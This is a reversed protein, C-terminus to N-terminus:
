LPIKHTISDTTINGRECHYKIHKDKLTRILRTLLKDIKIMSSRLSDAKPEM